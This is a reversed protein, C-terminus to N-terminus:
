QAYGLEPKISPHVTRTRRTLDAGIWDCFSTALAEMVSVEQLLCPCVATRVVADACRRREYEDHRQGCECAAEAAASRLETLPIALCYGDTSM